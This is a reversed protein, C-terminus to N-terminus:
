RDTPLLLRIGNKPAAEGAMASLSLKDCAIQHAIPWFRNGAGSLYRLAAWYGQARRLDLFRRHDRKQRVEELHAQMACALDPPLAETSLHAKLRDHLYALEHAGHQASLSTQRVVAVYGPSRTLKLRAGELLMRVYLDYDEGLRLSPNYRLNHRNLFTRSMIPKMFGLEGRAVSHKRLNGLVFKVASLSSFTPQTGSWDQRIVEKLNEPAVFAINDAVMECGDCSLLRGLRGPLFLDDSDLVAVFASTAADLARNRAAGPGQNIDLRILKVRPDRQAEQRAVASTEDRSADDVVIAEATEPETLASRIARALTDQANYAAIIVTVCPPM